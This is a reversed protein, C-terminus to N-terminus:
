QIPVTDWTGRLALGSRSPGWACRGWVGGGLTGLLKRWYMSMKRHPATTAPPGLSRLLRGHLPGDGQHELGEPPQQCNLRGSRSPAPADCCTVAADSYATAEERPGKSLRKLLHGYLSHFSTPMGLSLVSHPPGRPSSPALVTPATPAGPAPVQEPAKPISLPVWLQCSGSAM